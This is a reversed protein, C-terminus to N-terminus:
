LKHKQHKISEVLFTQSVAAHYFTLINCHVIFKFFIVCSDPLPRISHSLAPIYINVTILFFFFLSFFFNTLFLLVSM